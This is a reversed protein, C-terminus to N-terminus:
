RHAQRYSQPSQGTLKRFWRYFAPVSQFGADLAINVVKGDTDRLLAQARDVRQRAIHEPLSLGTVQNWARSFQAPSLHVHRAVLAVPLPEGLHDAIFHRARRLRDPERREHAALYRRTLHCIHQARQHLTRLEAPPTAPDIRLKALVGAASRDGRDSNADSTQRRATTEM